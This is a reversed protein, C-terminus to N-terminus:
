RADSVRTATLVGERHEYEITVPEGTRLHERLHGLPFDFVGDPAPAFSTREGDSLVDFSRVETLDGDVAVVLGTLQGSGDGGTVAVVILLAGVALLAGILLRRPVARARGM